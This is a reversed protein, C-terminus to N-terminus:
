HGLDFTNPPVELEPRSEPKPEPEPKPPNPDKCKKWCTFGNWKRGSNSYLGFIAAAIGVVATVLAAHQTSPADVMLLAIQDPSLTSVDVKELVEKPLHPELAMYWAIVKYLLYAYAAVLVRPILRWGDVFEATALHWRRYTDIDKAM